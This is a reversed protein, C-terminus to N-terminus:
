THTPVQPRTKNHWVNFAAAEQPGAELPAQGICFAQLGLQRSSPPHLPSPQSTSFDHRGLAVSFPSLVPSFDQGGLAGPKTRKQNTTGGRFSPTTPGYEIRPVKNRLQIGSSPVLQIWIKPGYGAVQPVLGRCFQKLM